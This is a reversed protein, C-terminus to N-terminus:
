AISPGYKRYTPRMTSLLCHPWSNSANARQDAVRAGRHHPPHGVPGARAECIAARGLERLDALHEDSTRLERRTESRRALREDRSRVGPGAHDLRIEIEESLHARPVSSRMCSHM